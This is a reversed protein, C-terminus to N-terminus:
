ITRETRVTNEGQGQRRKEGIGQERNNGEGQGIYDKRDKSYEGGTRAKEERRHGQKRNNREGQGICEKRDKVTNEGQGQRRKEGIDRSGTRYM